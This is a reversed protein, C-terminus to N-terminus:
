KDLKNQKIYEYAGEINALDNDYDNVGLEERMSKQKGMIIDSWGALTNEEPKSPELASEKDTLWGNIKIYAQMAEYKASAEQAWAEQDSNGNSAVRAIVAHTNENQCENYCKHPFKNHRKGCKPCSQKMGM